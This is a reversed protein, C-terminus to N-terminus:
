FSYSGGVILNYFFHVAVSCYLSGSRLRAALAALGMVSTAITFSWGFFSELSLLAAFCLTSAVSARFLGWSAAFGRLLLGRFLVEETASTILFPIFGVAAMMRIVQNNISAPHGASGGIGGQSSSPTLTVYAAGMAVGVLSWTVLSGTSPRVLGLGSSSKDSVLDMAWARIMGIMAAASGLSSVWAALLIIAVPHVSKRLLAVLLFIGVLPMVVQVGVYVMFARFAQGARFTSLVVPAPSSNMHDRFAEVFV